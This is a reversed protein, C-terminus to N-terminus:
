AIGKSRSDVPRDFFPGKNNWEVEIAVRNKYCDVSHTPSPDVMEDVTIATDFHREVWGLRYFHGDLARSVLSRNGGGVTVYSRKLRFGTLVEEIERWEEPHISRLIAYPNRWEHIEYLDRLEQSLPELYV